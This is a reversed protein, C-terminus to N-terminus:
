NPRAVAAQTLHLLRGASTMGGTEAVSVLARLLAIDIDRSM